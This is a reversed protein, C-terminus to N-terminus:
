PRDHRDAELAQERDLSRKQTTIHTRWDERFRNEAISLMYNIFAQESVFQGGEIIGKFTSHFTEQLFDESDMVRRLPSHRPLYHHRISALIHHSYRRYLLHGAEADGARVRRLLEQLGVEESGLQEQEQHEEPAM